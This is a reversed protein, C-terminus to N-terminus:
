GICGPSSEFAPDAVCIEKNKKINKEPAGELACIEIKTKDPRIAPRRREKSRGGCRGTQTLAPCEGM